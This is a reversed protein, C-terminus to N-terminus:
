LGSSLCIKIKEATIIAKDDSKVLNSLSKNIQSDIDLYVGGENLLITYRWVDAKAVINQLKFFM